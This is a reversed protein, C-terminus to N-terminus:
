FGGRVTATVTVSAASGDHLLKFGNLAKDLVRIGGLEGGSYDSVYVDVSYNANSRTTTLAVTTEANNFPYAYGSVDLTVEHTEATVEESVEEIAESAAAAVDATLTKLRTVAEEMQSLTTVSGSAM